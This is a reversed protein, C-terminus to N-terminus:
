GRFTAVVAAIVGARAGLLRRGIEYVLWATVVAVVIQAGGIAWWNAGLLWDIPILFWAYLPQTYASPAGPVFGFTGHDVFMRAITDSKETFSATVKDRERLLVALRPIACVLALIYYSRRRSM